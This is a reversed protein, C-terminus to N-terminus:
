FLICLIYLCASLFSLLSLNVFHFLSFFLFFLPLFIKDLFITVMNWFSLCVTAQLITHLSHRHALYLSLSLSLCTTADKVKFELWGQSWTTRAAVAAVAAVARCLVSGGGSENKTEINNNKRWKRTESPSPLPTTQAWRESGASQHRRAFDTEQKPNSKSSKM